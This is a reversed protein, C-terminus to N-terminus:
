PLEPADPRRKTNDTISRIYSNIKFLCNYTNPIHLEHITHNNYEIVSMRDKSLIGRDNIKIESFTRKVNM